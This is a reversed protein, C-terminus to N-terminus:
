AGPFYRAVDEDLSRCEFEEILANLQDPSATRRGLKLAIDRKLAVIRHNRLVLGLHEILRKQYAPPATKILENLLMRLHLPLMQTEAEVAWGSFDFEGPTSATRPSPPNTMRSLAEIVLKKRLFPVGPINDSGDGFISKYTLIWRPHFGLQETAQTLSLLREGKRQNTHCWVSVDSGLLQWFDRDNSLIVVHAPPNGWRKEQRRLKTIFSAISDDAEQKPHRVTNVPLAKIIRTIDPIPDASEADEAHTRRNGKYDPFEAYKHEPYGELACVISLSGRSSLQAAVGTLIKFFGFVHGSKMGKSTQMFGYSQASWARWGVNAADVVLVTVPGDKLRVLDFPSSTFLSM